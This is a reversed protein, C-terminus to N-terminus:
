ARVWAEALALTMERAGDPPVLLRVTRKETGQSANTTCEVTIAVARQLNSGDNRFAEVPIATIAEVLLWEDQSADILGDPDHNM